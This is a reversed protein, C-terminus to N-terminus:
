LTIYNVHGMRFHWLRIENYDSRDRPHTVLAVSSAAPSIVPHPIVSMFFEYLDHTRKGGM